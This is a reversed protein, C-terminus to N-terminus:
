RKVAEFRSIYLLRIKEASLGFIKGLIRNSVYSTHDSSTVIKGFKLKLIDDIQNDTFEKM